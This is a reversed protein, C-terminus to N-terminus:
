ADWPNLLQVGTGRFDKVNRTALAFRRSAAISAIAGDAFGIRNGVATASSNVTAFAAAAAGDFPLVRGGFLPLVQSEIAEHLQRRRRGAPLAQVGSLLEALTISTIYLTEAAQADLWELVGEDPQPRLPESVVNTDLVIM